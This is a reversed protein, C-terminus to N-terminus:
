IGWIEWLLISGITLGAGLGVFLWGILILTTYADM